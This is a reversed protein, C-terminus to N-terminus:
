YYSIPIKSATLPKHFDMSNNLFFKFAKSGTVFRQNQIKISSGFEKLRQDYNEGCSNDHPITRSSFCLIDIVKRVFYFKFFLTVLLLAITKYKINDFFCDKDHYVSYERIRKITDGNDFDTAFDCEYLKEIFGDKDKVTWINEGPLGVLQPTETLLTLSNNNSTLNSKSCFEINTEVDPLHLMKFQAKSNTSRLFKQIESQMDSRLVEGKTQVVIRSCYAMLKENKSMCVEHVLSILNKEADEKLETLKKIKAKLHMNEQYAIVYLHHFNMNQLQAQNVRKEIEEICQAIRKKEINELKFNLKINRNEFISAALLLSLNKKEDSVDKLKKLLARNIMDQTPTPQGYLSILINCNKIKRQLNNWTQILYKSITGYEFFAIHKLYIIKKLYNYFGCAEVEKLKRTVDLIIKKKSNIVLIFCGTACLITYYFIGSIQKNSFYSMKNIVVDKKLPTITIISVNKYM